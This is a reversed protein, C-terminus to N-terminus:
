AALTALENVAEHLVQEMARDASAPLSVPGANALIQQVREHAVEVM